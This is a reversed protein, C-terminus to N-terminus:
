IAPQPEDDVLDKIFPTGQWLSLLAHATMAGCTLAAMILLITFLIWGAFLWGQSVSVFRQFFDISTVGWTAVISATRFKYLYLM